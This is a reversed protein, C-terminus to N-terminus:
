SYLTFTFYKYKLIYERIVSLLKLWPKLHWRQAIKKRMIKPFKYVMDRNKKKENNM